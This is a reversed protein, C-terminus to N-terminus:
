SLRCYKPFHNKLIGSSGKGWGIPINDVAVVTYGLSESPITNGKLFEKLLEDNVSFSIVNKFDNINLSMLLAHSPEFRNKRCIGLYFGARALKIKDTNIGHPIIYLNEGFLKFSGEIHINLFKKEFEYYLKSAELSQKDPKSQPIQAKLSNGGKHLLAVFHGEGKNKHPFIRRTLSLNHRSSIYEGSGPSLNDLGTNCLSLDSYESLMYDIVGENEYPSFTCTSYAIYGGPRLMRYACDMILKQRKACSITHNLSWQTLSQPEKKFMGEGSCPADVIIKDFFSPFKLALQEPNENTVITNKFGFREINEVLSSARKSIIENSILLGEDSLKAGAQTSKGGPAACLDLVFDDPKINLVEVCSMASPEQFYCLGAIHYPHNGSLNEKNFYFGDACWPVKDCNELIHSFINKSTVKKPNLRLGTYVENTNLTKEFEEYEDKLISRMCSVFDEPLTM